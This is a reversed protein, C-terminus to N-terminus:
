TVTWKSKNLKPLPIKYFYIFFHKSLNSINFNPIIKIQSYKYKIHVNQNDLRLWYPFLHRGKDSKTSIIIIFFKTPYNSIWPIGNSQNWNWSNVHLSCKLSTVKILGVIISVETLGMIISVEILLWFKIKFIHMNILFNSKISKHFFLVHLVLKNRIIESM